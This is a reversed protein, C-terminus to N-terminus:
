GRLEQAWAREVMAEFLEDSRLLEHLKELEEKSLPKELREM